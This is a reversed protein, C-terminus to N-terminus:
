EAAKPMPWPMDENPRGISFYTFGYRIIQDRRYINRLDVLVPAEMSARLRDFDLARFQNWETVVVLCHAGEACEYPGEACDLGDIVQRAHEMAEPDYGRV